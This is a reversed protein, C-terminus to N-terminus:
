ASIIWKGELLYCTLSFLKLSDNQSIQVPQMSASKGSCFVFSLQHNNYCIYVTNTVASSCESCLNVGSSCLQLAILDRSPIPHHTHSSLTHSKQMVTYMIFINRLEWRYKVSYRHARVILLNPGVLVLPIEKSQKMTTGTKGECATADWRLTRGWGTLERYFCVLM